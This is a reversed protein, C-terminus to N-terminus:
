LADCRGPVGLWMCISRGDGRTVDVPSTNKQTHTATRIQRLMAKKMDICASQGCFCLSRQPVPHGVGHQRKQREQRAPRRAGQNPGGVGRLGFHVRQILRHGGKDQLATWPVGTLRLRRGVAARPASGRRSFRSVARQERDSDSGSDGRQETALGPRVRTERKRTIFGAAVLRPPM